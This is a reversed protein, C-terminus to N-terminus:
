RVRYVAIWADEHIPEGLAAGLFNGAGGDRYTKMFFLAAVPLSEMSVINIM